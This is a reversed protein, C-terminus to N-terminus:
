ERGYRPYGTLMWDDGVAHMDARALRSAESLAAVGVGGVAGHADAGGIVMPAVFAVVKDILHADFLHGLLTPGGEALISVIDRAALMHLMAHLDLRGDADLHCAIIEAGTKELRNRRRPAIDSGVVIWTPAKSQSVHPLVRADLPIRGHPDVIIRVPDRGGRMRCTLAPDDAVVTGVGVMIADLTNRLQHTVARARAGTIWQSAGTRTAVRGDLSQAWKGVVFPRKNQVYHAFSENLDQCAQQMLGLHVEIGAARLRRVGRGDVLPNPDRMGVFVRRAGAAILAETCPPTRGHHNCPELTVYVDAGRAAAGAQRLAMVEAHPLGARAHYGVGVVTRGRVIVCGVVPNPRTRGLARRAEDLARAMWTDHQKTQQQSVPAM